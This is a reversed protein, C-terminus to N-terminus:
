TKIMGFSKITNTDPDRPKHKVPMIKYYRIHIKDTLGSEKYLALEAPNQLSNEEQM